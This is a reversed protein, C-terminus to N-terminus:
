STPYIFSKVVAPDATGASASCSFSVKTM